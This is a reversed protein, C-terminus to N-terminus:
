CNQFSQTVADVPVPPLIDRRHQTLGTFIEGQSERFMVGIGRSNGHIVIAPVLWNKGLVSFELEVATGLPLTLSQVALFM